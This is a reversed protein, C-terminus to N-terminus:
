GAHKITGQLFDSISLLEFTGNSLRGFSNNSLWDGLNIYRGTHSGFTYSRDKIEHRHGMVVIDFGAEIKKEAFDALGDPKGFDKADTYHRSKTSTNSALSIGIDPHLWQYLKINFRNRLIARLILYGQDNYVKGDGHAIYFRLGQHEREIDERYIPIDLEQEFFNQHGFDHNGMVYEIRLGSKRLADLATLTRFFERPLVTKYEFWYDFLDGVIYLCNADNRIREFFALLRQERERRQSKDGLGLHVDSIFYVVDKSVSASDIHSQADIM